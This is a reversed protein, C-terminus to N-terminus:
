RARTFQDRLSLPPLSIATNEEFAIVSFTEGEGQGGGELLSFFFISEWKRPFSLHPPPFSMYPLQSQRTAESRAIVSITFNGLLRNKQCGGEM